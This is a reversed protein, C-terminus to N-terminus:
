EWVSGAKLISPYGSVLRVEIDGSITIPAIREGNPPSFRTATHRVESACGALNLAITILTAWLARHKTKM